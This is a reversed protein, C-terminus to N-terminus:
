KSEPNKPAIDEALSSDLLQISQGEAPSHFNTRHPRLANPKQLSEKVLGLRKNGSIGVPVQLIFYGAASLEAVAPNVPPTEKKM